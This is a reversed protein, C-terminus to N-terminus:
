PVEERTPAHDRCLVRLPTARGGEVHWGAPASVILEVWLSAGGDTIAALDLVEDALQADVDFHRECDDCQIRLGVPSM